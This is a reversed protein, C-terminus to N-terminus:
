SKFQRTTKRRKVEVGPATQKEMQLAYRRGKKVAQTYRYWGAKTTPARNSLFGFTVAIRASIQNPTKAACWVLTSKSRM